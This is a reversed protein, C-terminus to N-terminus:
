GPEGLAPPPYGLCAYDQRLYALAKRVGAANSGVAAGFSTRRSTHHRRMCSADACIESAYRTVLAAIGVDTIPCEQIVALHM